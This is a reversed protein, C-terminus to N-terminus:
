EMLGNMLQIFQISNSAALRCSSPILNLPVPYDHFLHLLTKDAAKPTPLQDPAQEATSVDAYGRIRQSQSAGEQAQAKQSPQPEAKKLILHYRYHYYPM